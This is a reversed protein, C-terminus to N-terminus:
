KLNTLIDNIDDQSNLRTFHILKFWLNATLNENKKLHMVACTRQHIYKLKFYKM